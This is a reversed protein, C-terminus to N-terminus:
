VLGINHKIYYNVEWRPGAMKKVSTTGRSCQFNMQFELYSKPVCNLESINSIPFIRSIDPSILTKKKFIKIMQSQSHFSYLIFFITVEIVIASNQSTPIQQYKIRQTQFKRTEDQAHQKITKFMRLNAYRSHQIKFKFQNRALKLIIKQCRKLKSLWTTINVLATTINLYLIKRRHWRHHWWGPTGTQMMLTWHHWWSPTGTQM